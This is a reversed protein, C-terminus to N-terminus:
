ELQCKLMRLLSKNRCRDSVFWANLSGVIIYTYFFLTGNHIEDLWFYYGLIYKKLMIGLVLTLGIVGIPFITSSFQSEKVLCNRVRTM